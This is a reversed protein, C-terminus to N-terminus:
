NLTGLGTTTAVGGRKGCIWKCCAIKGNRRLRLGIYADHRDILDSLFHQLARRGPRGM